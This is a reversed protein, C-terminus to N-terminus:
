ETAQGHIAAQIKEYAAPGVGDVALLADRSAKALDDLTQFGAGVLIGTLKEDFRGEFPVRQVQVPEGLETQATKVIRNMLGMARAHELPMEQIGMAYNVTPQGKGPRFSRKGLLSVTVMEDAM